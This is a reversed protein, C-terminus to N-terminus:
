NQSCIANGSQPFLKQYAGRTNYLINDNIIGHYKM